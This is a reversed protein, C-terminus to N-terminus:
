KCSQTVGTILEKIPGPLLAEIIPNLPSVKNIDSISLNLLGPCNINVSDGSTICVKAGAITLQEGSVMTIAENAKVAFNGHNGEGLTEIYINRAKLKLDGQECNIIMDGNKCIIVKAANGNEDDKRGAVFKGNKNYHDHHGNTTAINLVSGDNETGVPGFIIVGHPNNTVTHEPIQAM